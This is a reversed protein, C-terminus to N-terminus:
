LIWGESTPLIGRKPQPKPRLIAMLKQRARFLMPRVSVERCGVVAAIERHTAGEAYALLVLERERPSLQQLAEDIESPVRPPASPDLTYEVSTEKRSRFLDRALNTAIQFLYSKSRPDIANDARLFRYYSEQFLEDALADNRLLRQLYLKLPRATQAYFADFEEPSLRVDRDL